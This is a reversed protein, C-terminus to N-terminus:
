TDQLWDQKICQLWRAEPAYDVGSQLGQVESMNAERRWGHERSYNVILHFGLQFRVRSLWANVILHREYM